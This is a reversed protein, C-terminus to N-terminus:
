ASIHSETRNNHRGELPFFLLIFYSKVKLTKLLVQTKPFLRLELDQDCEIHTHSPAVVPLEVAIFLLRDHLCLSMRLQGLQEPFTNKLGLFDLKAGEYM